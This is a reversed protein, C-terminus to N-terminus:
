TTSRWTWSPSASTPTTSATRIPSACASSTSSRRAARGRAHPHRPPAPSGLAPGRGGHRRRRGRGDGAARARRPARERDDRLGLFVPQRMRGEDTWQTFEVQAVLDPEVWHAGRQMEAPVRRVPSTERRRAELRHQLDALLRESFGSGVKGAYVLQGGEYFGVLLAGISARGDSPLTWGGIVIEQSLRCKAKRWDGGRGERYPADARKSVVGELGAERAKEFFAPGQGRVHDSFRLAAPASELLRRLVEKREELRM